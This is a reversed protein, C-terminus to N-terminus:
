VDIPVGTQRQSGDTPIRQAPEDTQCQGIDDHSLQEILLLYGHPRQRLVPLFHLLVQEVRQEEIAKQADQYAGSQAVAQEVLGVVEERGALVDDLHEQGDMEHLVARPLEGAIFPQSRVAASQTEDDGQHKIDTPRLELHPRHEVVNGDGCGDRGAEDAQAVQHVGLDDALGGIHGPGEDELAHVHQRAMWSLEVLGYGVGDEEENAPPEVTTAGGM